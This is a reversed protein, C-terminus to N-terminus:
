QVTERLQRERRGPRPTLRKLIEGPRLPSIFDPREENFGEIDAVVAALADSDEGKRYANLYRRRLTEAKDKWYDVTKRRAEYKRYGESLRLPQFGLGNGKVLGNPTVVAQTRDRAM